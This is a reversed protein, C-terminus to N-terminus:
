ARRECENRHRDWCFECSGSGSKWHEVEEQLRGLEALVALAAEPNWAAIHARDEEGYVEGVFNAVDHHEGYGPPFNAILDGKAEEWPGPTAGQAAAKMRALTEPNIM